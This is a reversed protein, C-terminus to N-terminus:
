RVSSRHLLICGNCNCHFVTLSARVLLLRDLSKDLTRLGFLLLATCRLARVSKALVKVGPMRFLDLM